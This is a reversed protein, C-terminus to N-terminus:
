PQKGFYNYLIYLCLSTYLVSDAHWTGDINSRTISCHEQSVSGHKIDSGRVLFVFSCRCCKCFVLFTWFSKAFDSRYWCWQCPLHHVSKRRNQQLLNPGVLILSLLITQPVFATDQKSKKPDLLHLYKSIYIHRGKSTGIGLKGSPWPYVSYLSRSAVFNLQSLSSQSRVDSGGCVFSVQVIVPWRALPNLSTPELSIRAKM